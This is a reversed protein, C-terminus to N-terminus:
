DNAAEISKTLYLIVSHVTQIEKIDAIKYFEGALEVIDAAKIETDANIKALLNVSIEQAGNQPKIMIRTKYIAAPVACFFTIKEDTAEKATRYIKVLQKKM